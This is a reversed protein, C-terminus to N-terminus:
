HIRIKRTGAPNTRQPYLTNISYVLGHANFGMTYGPLHGAYAMTSFKELIEGNEGMIEAAVIYINNLFEPCTDETHGLVVQVGFDLIVKRM